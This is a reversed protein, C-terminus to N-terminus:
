SMALSLMHQLFYYIKTDVTSNLKCSVCEKHLELNQVPENQVAPGWADVWSNYCRDSRRKEVRVVMMATTKRKNIRNGCAVCRSLLYSRLFWPPATLCVSMYLSTPQPHL